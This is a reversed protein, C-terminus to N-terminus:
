MMANASFSSVSPSIKLISCTPVVGLFKIGDHHSRGTVSIALISVSVSRCLMRVEALSNMLDGALTSACLFTSRPSLFILFSVLCSNLLNESQNSSMIELPLSLMPFVRNTLIFMSVPSEGGIAKFGCM